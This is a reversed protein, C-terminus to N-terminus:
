GEFLKNIKSKWEPEFNKASQGAYQKQSELHGNYARTVFGLIKARLEDRLAPSPVKWFMQLNCTASLSSAFSQMPSPSTLRFTFFNIRAKKSPPLGRSVDLTSTVPVWSAYMYRKTYGNIRLQRKEFWKAKVTLQIDSQEVEQLIFHINNVLFICQLGESAFSRSHKYIVSELDTILGFVLRYTLSMGDVTLRDHDDTHDHDLITDLSGKHKVLLSIYRMLYQSLALISGDKMSKQSNYTRILGKLVKVIGRASGKLKALVGEVDTSISDTCFVKRLVPTADMLATYMNLVCFLKEPSKRVEHDSVISAVTFLCRVPKKAAESLDDHTFGNCARHNQKLLQMQLTKLVSVIYELVAPWSKISKWHAEGLNQSDVGILSDFGGIFQCRTFIDCYKIHFAQYLDRSHEALLQQNVLERFTAFSKLGIIANFRSDNYIYTTNMVLSPDDLHEADFTDATSCSNFFSSSRTTNSSGSFHCGRLSPIDM